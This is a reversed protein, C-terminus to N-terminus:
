IHQDCLFLYATHVIKMIEENALGDMDFNLKGYQLFLCVIQINDKDYSKESYIRDISASDSRGNEYTIPMGSIACTYSVVIHEKKLNGIKDKRSRVPSWLFYQHDMNKTKKQSEKSKNSLCKRCMTRPRNGKFSGLLNSSRDKRRQLLTTPIRSKCTSCFFQRTLNVSRVNNLTYSINRSRHKGQRMVYGHKMLFKIGSYHQQYDDFCKLGLFNTSVVSGNNQELYEFCKISNETMGIPINMDISGKEEQVERYRYLVDVNQLPKKTALCEITHKFNEFSWSNKCYQFFLIIICCNDPDYGKNAEKQDISPHFWRKTYDFSIGSYACAFGTKIIRNVVWDKSITFSNQKEKAHSSASSFAANVIEMIKHEQPSLTIRYNTIANIYIGQVKKCMPCGNYIEKISRISTDFDGHYKCKCKILKKNTDTIEKQDPSLQCLSGFVEALINKIYINWFEICNKKSINKLKSYYPQQALRKKFELRDIISIKEREDGSM